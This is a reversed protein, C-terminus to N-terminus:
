WDPKWCCLPFSVMERPIELCCLEEATDRDSETFSTISVRICSSGSRFIVMTSSLASLITEERSDTASVMTIATTMEMIMMQSKKPSIRADRITPLEMGTEMRTDRITMFAMPSVMFTIVSLASVRPTPMITSLEITTRSLQKRAVVSRAPYQLHKQPQM